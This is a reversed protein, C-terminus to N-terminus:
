SGDQGSGGFIIQTGDPPGDPGPPTSSCTSSSTDILALDAQQQDPGLQFDGISLAAGAPIAAPDITVSLTSQDPPPKGPGSPTMRVWPGYLQVAQKFGDPAPDSSCFKGSTVKAPIGYQALDRQLSATDLLEGANITLTATGDPNGALTFAATRIPGIGTGPSPAAPVPAPAPAPAPSPASTLGVALATSAAAGAASLSAAATVRRARRARHARGRAMISEVDPPRAVPLGALSDAAARLVDHDSLEDHISM